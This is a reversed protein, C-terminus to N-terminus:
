FSELRRISGFVFVSIIMLILIVSGFILLAFSPAYAQALLGAGVGGAAPVVQSIITYFSMIRGRHEVPSNHQLGAVILSVAVGGCTSTIIIAIISPILADERGLYAIGIGAIVIAMMLQLGIKGKNKSWMALLGGIILSFAILSLYNGQATENLKLTKEAITPLIVQMPGMLLYAISGLVLFQWVFPSGRVYRLSGKIEQLAKEKAKGQFTFKLPLLILSSLAFLIAALLIVIDWSFSVKVHKLLMPALGFGTMGMLNLIITGIPLKEKSLYFPLTAFRAPAVFSWGIGSFLAASLLFLARSEDAGNIALIILFLCIFFSNQAILLVKRPSYRDCFVGAFWGLILPPGFCLGYGIGAMTHSDFWELSLFIISYNVIHGSLFAMFSSLIFLSARSNMPLKVVLQYQLFM